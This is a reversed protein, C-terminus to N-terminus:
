DMYGNASFLIAAKSLFHWRIATLCFTDTVPFRLHLGNGALIAFCTWFLTGM